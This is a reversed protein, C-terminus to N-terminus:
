IKISIGITFANDPTNRNLGRSWAADLQCNKSLLWAGGLDFTYQSGGNRAKAIQPASLEVFTRFSDTWSKGVVIGFIGNVARKGTDNKDWILGPMIGLSYDDPLEWEAALRLSPRVGQGRFASSGSDLDAHLLLGISPGKDDEDRAHWKVGISTDAYGRQRLAGEPGDSRYRMRGDTEARLELTDSVGYRLLTPTSSTRERVGADRNRELAVSTEIQFRGKGVVNSSEVFDPRDTVISDDEPEAAQAAQACLILGLLIPARM